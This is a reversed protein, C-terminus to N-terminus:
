LIDYKRGNLISGANRTNQLYKQTSTRAMKQHKTRYYSWIFIKLFTTQHFLGGSVSMKIYILGFLEM